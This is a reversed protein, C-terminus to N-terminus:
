VKALTEESQKEDAWALMVETERVNDDLGGRAFAARATRLSARAKDWDGEMVLERGREMEVEGARRDRERKIAASVRAGVADISARTVESILNQAEGSAFCSLDSMHERAREIENAEISAEVMACKCLADDEAQRRRVGEEEELRKSEDAAAAAAAAEERQGEEDVKQNEESNAKGEEKMVTSNQSEGAWVNEERGEGQIDGVGQMEGERKEEGGQGERKGKDEGAEEMADVSQREEGDEVGESRLRKQEDRRKAAEAVLNSAIAKQMEESDDDGGGDM